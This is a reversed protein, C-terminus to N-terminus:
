RSRARLPAVPLEVHSPRKADLYVTNTAKKKETGANVPEGTNPNSEFRPFNSSSIDVRIRHGKAFLNSTSGLEIEIEAVEGPTVLSEKGFGNRYRLRVQGDALIAAYGGPYVDILKATFDTDAADTSVWLRARVPGTVELDETLADTSFMLVDKREALPSSDNCGLIGPRCVQDQFCDPTLSRVGYRGGITPVPGAPDFVFTLAPGASATRNLKGGEALYLKTRELSELPWTTATLWTGGHQFRGEADRGGPGGGMRFYRVPQDPMEGAARGKLWRDFWALTMERVAVAAADGFFGDGCSSSGVAHWWPGMVLKKPMKQTKSLASFNSLVGDGFYDYWGSIFLIPVDKIREWGAPTHFGPDHWYADHRSHALFDEYIRLHVPFPEFVAARERPPLRLWKEPQELIQTLRSKAEANEQAAPSTEASRLIWLAWGLNLAGGPYAYEQYFNAGGVNAFMAVLHPPREMAARYQDWALYSAGYTGVKGNSWEQRAVWEIADYGDPGEQIFPYFQGESRFRGRVDQTVVAYGRQAYWEATNGQGSKNYPTRCLMAPFKGAARTGGQAPLYLDTALRVGDRMPVMVDRVVEVTYLPAQQAATVAAALLFLGCASFVKM